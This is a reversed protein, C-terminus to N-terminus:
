RSRRSCNWIARSRRSRSINAVAEKLRRDGNIYQLQQERLARLQGTLTATLRRVGRDGSKLYLVNNTDESLRTELQETLSSLDRRIGCLRTLLIAAALGLIGCLIWPLM